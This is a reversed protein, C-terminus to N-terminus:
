TIVEINEGNSLIKITGVEDTRYVEIGELKTLTEQHPHGYRNGQGVSIVAISPTVLDLFEQSTATNSGHHSAKLVDIDLPKNTSIMEEECMYGCDGTFLFSTDEYSIKIVISNENRDSTNLLIKPPHLIQTRTQNDIYYTISTSAVTKMSGEKDALRMVEECTLTNCSENIYLFRHVNFKNFVKILGGIHDADNHTAVVTHFGTINQEELYETLQTGKYRPGGDILIYNNSPYKILTSDGQGVDIYHIELDYEKIINVTENIEITNNDNKTNNNTENDKKGLGPIKGELVDGLFLEWVLIAIIAIVLIKIIESM